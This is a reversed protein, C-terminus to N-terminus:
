SVPATMAAPRPARQEAVRIRLAVYAAKQAPQKSETIASFAYAHRAPGRLPQAPLCHRQTACPAGLSRPHAAGVAGTLSCVPCRYTCKMASRTRVTSGRVSSLGAHVRHRHREVVQGAGPRVHHDHRETHSGFLQCAIITCRTLSPRRYTAIPNRRNMRSNTMTARWTRRRDRRVVNGITPHCGGTSRSKSMQAM